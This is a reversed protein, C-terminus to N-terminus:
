GKNVKEVIERLQIDNVDELEITYTEERFNDSSWFHVASKSIGYFPPGGHLASHAIMKGVAEFFGTQRLLPNAMPLKHNPAGEFVVSTSQGTHLQLQFGIELLSMVMSFYSRVPGSGIGAEGEFKVKVPAKLNSSGKYVCLIDAEIEDSTDAMRNLYIRLPPGHEVNQKRFRALLASANPNECAALM